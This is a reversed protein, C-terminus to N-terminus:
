YEYGYQFVCSTQYIEILTQEDEETKVLRLQSQWMFDNVNTVKAAQLKDIIERNHEEITILAILKLRNRFLLGPKEVLEVYSRVKNKYTGKLKKLNALNAAPDASSLAATVETTWTIQCLTLLVQGPNDNVYGILKESKKTNFQSGARYFIGKLTRKVCERLDELWQDVQSDVKVTSELKISEDEPSTM